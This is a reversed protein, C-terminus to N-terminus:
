NINCLRNESDAIDWHVECEDSCLSNFNRSCCRCLETIEDVKELYEQYDM